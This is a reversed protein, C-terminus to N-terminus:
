ESPNPFLAWSIKAPLCGVASSIFCPASLRLVVKILHRSISFKWEIRFNDKRPIHGVIHASSLRKIVAYVGLEM